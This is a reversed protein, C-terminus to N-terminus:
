NGAAADEAEARAMSADFAADVRASLLRIQVLQEATANANSGLTAIINQVIPLLAKYEAIILPIWAILLDIVKQVAPSAATALQPLFAQLLPILATIVLNM